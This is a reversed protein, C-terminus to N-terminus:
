NYDYLVLTRRLLSEMIYKHRAWFQQKNDKKM